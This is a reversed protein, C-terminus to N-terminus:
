CMIKNIEPGIKVMYGWIVSRKDNYTHILSKVGTLLGYLGGFKWELCSFWGYGRIEVGTLTLM